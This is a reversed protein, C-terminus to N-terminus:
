QGPIMSPAHGFKGAPHGGASLPMPAGPAQPMMAPHGMPQPAPGAAHAHQMLLAILPSPGVPAHPPAAPHIAPPAAPAGPFM